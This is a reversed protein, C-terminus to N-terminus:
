VKFALKVLAVAIAALLPVTVGAVVKGTAGWWWGQKAVAVHNNAVTTELAVIRRERQQGQEAFVACQMAVQNLTAEIKDQGARLDKLFEWLQDESVGDM